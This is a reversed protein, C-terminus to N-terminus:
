GARRFTTVYRFPYIAPVKYQAALRAIVDPHNAGFPSATAILGGNADSAFAAISQELEKANQM